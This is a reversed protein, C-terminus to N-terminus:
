RSRRWRKGLSPKSEYLDKITEAKQSSPGGSGASGSAGDLCSRVKKSTEGVPVVPPHPVVENGYAYDVIKLVVDYRLDQIFHLEQTM